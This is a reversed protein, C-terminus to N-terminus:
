QPKYYQKAKPLLAKINNIRTQDGPHTSLIEPPKSGGQAAMRQWFSVAEDPNYGAYAMLYLGIEDAESEHKRSYPLVYLLTSGYGYVGQFIQSTKQPQSSTAASLAAGGLQTILQQSMRENGHRSIAHAIEHGMVVALGTETQTYPLIGSYVVVKGGPMCWANVEKNNVLNFEWQYGSIDSARGKAALYQQAATALKNGVRKVMEADASGAAPPNEVLFNRYESVAMTRMESEPSLNVSKRGTVPNTYCSQLVSFALTVAAVSLISKM